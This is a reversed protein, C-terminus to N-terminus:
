NKNLIDMIINKIDDEKREIDKALAIQCRTRILNHEPYDIKFYKDGTIYDDLFRVALELTISYIGLPMYRIEEESVIDKTEGLFGEAFAKFKDLDFSVLSTDKEDEASTNAIFRVADGLDNILTGPMVTDLDIVMLPEKTIKDFLVNNCKTDNHTVRVAIEKNKFLMSLFGAKERRSSIYDIEDRVESVRNCPDFSVGEFLRDLRGKTFHFDKITEFLEAGDLDALLMQFHGFARGTARIIVPDDSVNYTVSDIFDTIRWFSGDDDIYYNEGSPRKHFYLIKEEPYRSLIHDSIRDINSMIKKPELFVHGNIRQFVYERLDYSSGYRVIYTSNINGNKIVDFSVPRENLGFKRGIYDLKDLM